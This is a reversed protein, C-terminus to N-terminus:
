IYFYKNANGAGNWNPFLKPHFSIHVGYEEAIKVILYRAMWLDDAAKMGESTGIQFEWQSPTVEANTGFHDIGAYLCAKYHSEIIERGYAYQAGVGCYYMGNPEPEGHMIPWGFPRGDVDMLQFEQEFGWMPEEQCICNMAELCQVRHNTPTPKNESDYTECLVIKCNGGKIPDNYLAVPKVTVDSDESRALFASSGDFSTNPVDEPCAPISESTCTKSRLNEGTGDIWVYEIQIKCEPLPLSLYRDILQKDLKTNPSHDLICSNRINTTSFKKTLKLKNLLNRKFFWRFM